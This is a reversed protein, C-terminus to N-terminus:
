KYISNYENLAYNDTMGSIYDTINRVLIKRKNIYEEDPEESLDKFCIQRFEDAILKPNGNIFDIVNDSIKKIDRYIRILTGKHLLKPNNYYAEFLFRIILDAKNDFKTVELSNIVRKSIIRDLYDNIFAGEPSFSILKKDFRHHESYFFSPEYSNIRKESETVVDNIFYSIISSVIRSRLIDDRDPYIRNKIEFEDRENKLFIITDQLSKLKKLEFFSILEDYTLYNSAFSDDLDHGRQAIEDAIAVIQGELTTPFDYDLFLYEIEGNVLFESISYCEDPHYKPEGYDNLKVKTHKLVGELVQYSLDLGEFELYKEELYSLVRVSQFNHKFGGFGNFEPMDGNKIIEIKNKLINDLTREGQHGFPTHGFDHALAIAETLDLNLNLRQAIGRAIQSVELTHTMRTRYHDGKSSTFIQAKDVLRRMAKSHIIRERDRQFEGRSKDKELIGIARRCHENKQSFKHLKAESELEDYCQDSYKIIVPKYPKETSHKLQTILSDSYELSVYSNRKFDNKLDLGSSDIFNNIVLESNIDRNIKYNISNSNEKIKCEGIFIENAKYKDDYSHEFIIFIINYDENKDLSEITEKDALSCPNYYRYINNNFSDKIFNIINSEDHKIKVIIFPKSM